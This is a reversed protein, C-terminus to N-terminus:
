SACGLATVMMATVVRDAVGTRDPRAKGNSLGIASVNKQVAWSLNSSFGAITGGIAVVPQGCVDILFWGLGYSTQRSDRFPFEVPKGSNLVAPALM